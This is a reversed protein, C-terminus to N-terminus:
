RLLDAYDTMADEFSYGFMDESSQGYMSECTADYQKGIEVLIDPNSLLLSFSAFFAAFSMVFPSTTNKSADEVLSLHKLRAYGDLPYFTSELQGVNELEMSDFNIKMNATKVKYGYVRQQIPYLNQENLLYGKPNSESILFEKKVRLIILVYDNVLLNLNVMKMVMLKLIDM